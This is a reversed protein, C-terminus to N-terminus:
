QTNASVMPHADAFLEPVSIDTMRILSVLEVREGDEITWFGDILRLEVIDERGPIAVRLHDKSIALLIGEETRGQTFNFTLHM